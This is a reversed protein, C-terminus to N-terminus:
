TTRLEATVADRDHVLAAGYPRDAHPILDILAPPQGPHVMLAVGKPMTAIQESRMTPVERWSTSTSRSGDPNWSLTDTREDRSGVLSSLDHLDQADSLGGLILKV